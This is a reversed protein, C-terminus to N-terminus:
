AATEAAGARIAPRAMIVRLVEPGKLGAAVIPQDEEGPVGPVARVAREEPDARARHGRTRRSNSRISKCHSKAKLLLRAGTAPPVVQHAERVGNVKAAERDLVVGMHVILFIIPAMTAPRGRHVENDQDGQVAKAAMKAM